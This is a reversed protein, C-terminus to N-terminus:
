MSIPRMAPDFRAEFENSQSILFQLALIQGQLEAEQQIFKHPEAPNFTLAVKKQAAEAIQNQTVQKQPQTLISGLMLESESLIWSQFLNGPDLQAM